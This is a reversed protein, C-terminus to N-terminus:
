YPCNFTFLFSDYGAIVAWSCLLTLHTEALAEFKGNIKLGGRVSLKQKYVFHIHYLSVSLINKKHSSMSHM